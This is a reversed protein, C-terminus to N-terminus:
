GYVLKRKKKLGAVTKDFKQKEAGMSFVCVHVKIAENHWWRVEMLNNLANIVSSRQFQTVKSAISYISM